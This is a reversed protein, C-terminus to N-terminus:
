EALRARLWTAPRDGGTGGVYETSPTEATGDIVGVTLGWPVGVDPAGGVDAWPVRAEITHRTADLGPTSVSEGSSVGGEVGAGGVAQWTGDRGTM